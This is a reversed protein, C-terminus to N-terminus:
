VQQPKIREEMALAIYRGTIAQAIRYPIGRQLTLLNAVTLGWIYERECAARMRNERFQIHEIVTRFLRVVSRTSTFLFILYRGAEKSVEVLNTYPTNRQGLLFDFYFSSIHATQGR